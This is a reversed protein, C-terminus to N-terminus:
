IFLSIFIFYDSSDLLQKQTHFSFDYGYMINDTYKLLFILIIYWSIQWENFFICQLHYNNTTVFSGYGKQVFKQFSKIHKFILTHKIPHSSLSTFLFSFQCPIYRGEYIHSHYNLKCRWVRLKRIYVILLFIM